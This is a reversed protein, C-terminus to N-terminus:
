ALRRLATVTALGALTMTVSGLVHASIAAGAWLLRDQQLLSAVEVSFASFTTLGGLFGTYILLRWEPTLDPVAAFLAMALGALYGGALNVGLTGLPLAPLVPNLWIALGWRLLAGLSAGACVALVSLWMGRM